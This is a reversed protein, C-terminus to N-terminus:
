TFVKPLQGRSTIALKRYARALHTEVTKATIFLAQAIQRNSLGRSALLAVRSEAPTLADVGTVVTRRPRIGLAHLETRVREALPRAQAQEAIALAQRLPRRCATDGSRRLATGLDALARAHELAAPSRGLTATSETLATIDTPRAVLGVVRQATGIAQPIRVARARDLAAAALFQAQDHDGAHRAALAATTRWPLLGPHDIGYFERLRRGATIALDLATASDGRALALQARVHAALAAEMSDPPRDDAQRLIQHAVALDGHEVYIQAALWGNWGGASKWGVTYPLQAAELDALAATLRGCRLRALARHYSAYGCALIDGRRGAATLAADAAREAAALEGVIILAHVVLAMLAGSGGGPELVPDDTLAYEASALVRAPPEGALALRLTVHAALGRSAPQPDLSLHREARERTAPHFMTTTLYGALVDQWEPGGPEFLELAAEWAGVAGDPDDLGKHVQALLTLAHARLSRDAPDLLDLGKTLSALAAPNGALLQARALAVFLGGRTDVPPPEALARTLLRAASAPDGRRLATDAADRLVEAVRPDGEPEVVLLHGAVQDTGAGDASLLDAARRHARSRAFAPLDAHVAAGILPHTFTLPNGPRVLCATALRDAAREAAVLDLGAHAAVRSLPTGDGLVAISTALTVTDGPLQALRALVSRLVAGPVLDAITSPRPTEGEAQLSRLLEGVLFPNGGTAYDVADVLANDPAPFTKAVLHGVATRTLPAPRLLTARPHTLLLTPAEAGDRVSVVLMLPLTPARDALMALFRLSVADAWQADDVAVLLPASGALNAALWCLGLLLSDPAPHPAQDLVLSAAAIAPGALLGAREDPGAAAIPPALLEVAVGLAIERELQRGRGALVRMGTVHAHEAAAGLLGTKGIGPPGAIIVLGGEGAGAATMASELVAMEGGRELLM